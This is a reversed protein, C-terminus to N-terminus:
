SIKFAQSCIETAFAKSMQGEAGSMALAGFVGGGGQSTNIDYDGIVAGGAVDLLQVTGKIKNSDGIMLTQFANQPSFMTVTVQLKLPMAGKACKQLETVLATRLTASFEPSVNDPLSKIDIDKVYGNKALDPPLGKVTESSSSSCAALLLLSLPAVARLIRM